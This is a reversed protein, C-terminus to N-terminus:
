VHARGIKVFSAVLISRGNVRRVLNRRAPTPPNSGASVDVVSWAGGISPEKASCALSVLLAAAVRASAKLSLRCRGTRGASRGAPDADM